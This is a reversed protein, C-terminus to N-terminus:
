KKKLKASNFKYDKFWNIFSIALLHEHTENERDILDNIKYTIDRLTNNIKNTRTYDKLIKNIKEKM